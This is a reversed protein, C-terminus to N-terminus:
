QGGHGFDADGGPLGEIRGHLERMGVPSLDSLASGLGKLAAGIDKQCLSVGCITAVFVILDIKGNRGFLGEALVALGFGRAFGDRFHIFLGAALILMALSGALIALMEGKEGDFYRQIAQSLQLVRADNLTGSREDIARPRGWAITSSGRDAPDGSPPHGTGSRNQRKSSPFDWHKIM